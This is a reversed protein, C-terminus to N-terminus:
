TEVFHRFMSSQFHESLGEVAGDVNGSELCDIIVLHQDVATLFVKPAVSRQHAVQAFRINEQLRDHTAVISPNHLAEVFRRHFLHDLIVFRDIAEAIQLSGNLEERSQTHLSRAEDAWGSPVADGFTRIAYTEIIIRFQYNERIFSVEPNVIQIGARPRVHVLRHEELLVLTERLPTLSMSLANCLDSQTLTMGPKLTGSRLANMFKRYGANAHDTPGPREEIEMLDNM